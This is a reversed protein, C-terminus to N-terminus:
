IYVCLYILVCAKILICLYMGEISEKNDLTREVTEPTSVTSVRSWANLTHIMAYSRDATYRYINMCIYILYICCIHIFIYIHIYIYTYIYM